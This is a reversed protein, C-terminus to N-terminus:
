SVLRGDIDSNWFRLVTFGQSRLLDDRRRDSQAGPDIGHQDGDAEIILRVPFASL